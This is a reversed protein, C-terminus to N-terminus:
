CHRRGLVSGSAHVIMNHKFDAALPKPDFLRCMMERVSGTSTAVSARAGGRNMQETRWTGLRSVTSTDHSFLDHRSGHVAGV